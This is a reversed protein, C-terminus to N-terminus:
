LGIEKGLHFGWRDLGPQAAIPEDLNVLFGAFMRGIRTDLTARLGAASQWRDIGASPLLVTQLRPCLTFTSGFPLQAELGLQGVLDTGSAEGRVGLMLADANQAVLVIGNAFAYSVRVIAPVAMRDPLWQWQNWMGWMALTRNYLMEHLRGQSGLNVHALPATVGLGAVIRWPGLRADYHASVQPNGARLTSEGLGQNDILWGFGVKLDVLVRPRPAYAAEVLPSSVISNSGGGSEINASLTAGLSFDRSAAPAPPSETSTALDNTVEPAPHLDGGPPPSGPLGYPDPTQYYDAPFYTPPLNAPVGPPPLAPPPVPSTQAGSWNPLALVAL